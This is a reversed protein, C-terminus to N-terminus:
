RYAIDSSIDEDEDSDDTVSDMLFKCMVSGISNKLKDGYYEELKDINSGTVILFPEFGYPYENVYKVLILFTYKDIRFFADLVEGLGEFSGANDIINNLKMISYELVDANFRGDSEDELREFINDGGGEELWRMISCFDIMESPLNDYDDVISVIVPKGDFRISPIITYYGESNNEDDNM